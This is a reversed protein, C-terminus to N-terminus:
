VITITWRPSWLTEIFGYNESYVSLSAHITYEGIPVQGGKIVGGFGAGVRKKQDWRYTETLSSNAGIELTRNGIVDGGHRNNWVAGGASNEIIVLFNDLSYEVMTLQLRMSSKNRLTATIHVDEGQQYNDKDTDIELELYTIVNEPQMEREIHFALVGLSIAVLFAVAILHKSLM